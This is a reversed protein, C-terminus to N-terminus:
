PEKRAQEAVGPEGGPRLPALAGRQGRRRHLRASCVRHAGLALDVAFPRFGLWAVSGVVVGRILESSLRFGRAMASARAAGTEAELGPNTLGSKEATGFKPCGTIWVESGQPFRLKTPPNIAVEM